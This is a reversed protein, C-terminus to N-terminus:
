VVHRAAPPAGFAQVFPMVPTYAHGYPVGSLCLVDSPLSQDAPPV